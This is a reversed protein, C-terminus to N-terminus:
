HVADGCSYFGGSASESLKQFYPVAKLKLYVEAGLKSAGILAMESEWQGARLTEM